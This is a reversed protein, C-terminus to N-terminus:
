VPDPMRPRTGALAPRDFSWRFAEADIAIVRGYRDRGYYGADSAPRPMLM